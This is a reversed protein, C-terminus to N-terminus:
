CILSSASFQRLVVNLVVDATVSELGMSQFVMVFTM